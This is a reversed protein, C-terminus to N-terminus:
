ASWGIAELQQTLDLNMDLVRSEPTTDALLPYWNPLHHCLLYQEPSTLPVAGAAVIASALRGYAAADLMWGRYVVTSGAPVGRLSRQGVITADSVLSTSFGAVQFAVMQDTFMEDPVTPRSPHAPFIFHHNM